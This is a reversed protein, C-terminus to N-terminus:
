KSAQKIIIESVPRKLWKYLFFHFVIGVVLYLGAIIFFGYYANGLIEGLWLAVGVTLLLVFLSIMMVVSIRALMATVIITTSDLMKLKTLEFTTKVYAEVPEFLSEVSSLPTEM